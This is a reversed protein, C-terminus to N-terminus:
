KDTKGLNDMLKNYFAAVNEALEENMAKYSSKDQVAKIILDNNIAALTLEKAIEAKTLIDGGKM